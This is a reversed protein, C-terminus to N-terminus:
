GSLGEFFDGVDGLSFCVLQALTEVGPLLTEFWGLSGKPPEFRTQAEEVPVVELGGTDM